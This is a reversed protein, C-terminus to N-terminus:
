SGLVRRSYVCKSGEWGKSGKVPFFCMSYKRQLVAMEFVAEAAEVEVVAIVLPVPYVGLLVLM